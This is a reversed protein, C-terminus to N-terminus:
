RLVKEGRKRGGAVLRVEGLRETDVLHVREVGGGRVLEGLLRRQISGPGSRDAERDRDAAASLRVLLWTGRAIAASRRGSRGRRLSREPCPARGARREGDVARSGPCALLRVSQGAASRGSFM